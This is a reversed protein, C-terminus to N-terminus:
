NIMKIPFCTKQLYILFLILVSNIKFDEFKNVPVYPKSEVIPDAKRIYQSHAIKVGGRSGGRSSGGFGGKKGRSSNGFRSRSGGGFRPRSNQFGGGHSSSKKNFM